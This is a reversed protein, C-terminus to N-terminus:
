DDTFRVRSYFEGSIVGASTGQVSTMALLWLAGTQIDAATGANGANFTVPLMCKKYLKFMQNNPGDPDIQKDKDWIVKFRERNNLNLPTVNGQAPTGQFIDGYQVTGGNAQADYIVMLRIYGATVGTLATGGSSTQLTFLIRLQISKMSIKRGIRNVADTGLMCGNILQLTETGSQGGTNAAVALTNLNFNGVQDLYKREPGPGTRYSGDSQQRTAIQSYNGGTRLLSPRITPYSRQITKIARASYPPKTGRPTNRYKPM